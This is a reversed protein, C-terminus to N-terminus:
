VAEAIQSDLHVILALADGSQVKGGEVQEPDVVVRTLYLEGREDDSKGVGLTRRLQVDLPVFDFCFEDGLAKRLHTLAPDEGQPLEGELLSGLKRQM